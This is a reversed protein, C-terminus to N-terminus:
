PSPLSAVVEELTLRRGAAWAPTDELRELRSEYRRREAAVMRFGLTEEAACIAGWITAAPEDLKREALVSAIGALCVVLTAPSPGGRLEDVIQRYVRSATAFDGRDLALDGLSHTNAAIFAEPAGVERSIVDAELLAREAEEFRELDRLVEGLGHLWRAERFRNGTARSQTLGREALVLATELDGREWVVAARRGEIWTIEDTEGLQEAVAQASAWYRDALETDTIVHFATLGAVELAPLQLRPLVLPIRPTAVELWAVADYFGDREVWFPCCAIGLRLGLENQNSSWAWSLASQLNEREDQLRAFGEEIDIKLARMHGPLTTLREALECCWEAHRGLLASTDGADELRETSYERITELMWYRSGFTSERRRLLSKDLLSQLTDPDAGCVEEAAEYTCGGPFVSLCRFLRQEEPALLNYSWEITARLTQQRPDADRGGKFLDLRQSLRELLQEPSFLTTRAAALELALPLNDLRLCLQSVSENAAFAPELARARALFLEIGDREALTPVPYVQEGQLQLRERSTVLLAPGSTAVLKAIEEAAAPLLHEANDLLLLARKGGLEATLTEDLDRGPQEKVELAQAVASLLLAPDRVPALPVWWIGDPYRDSAEAAAQLALRTKGTGGSGTLTLLRIDQRMLFEVVRQLERQRGLFPTAPVPLWVNRLSRLPPHDGDDFQFVREPAALDKLRHEGLDRLELEVLGATSASVLVQGGHGAAAIRAARHVDAGVYGDETVLPTGTHLGLRVRIPGPALGEGIAQAAELAGPATPFALFFADGQTDVEIGGFRTCAERILRRHEALAKSYGEAGLGELLRTSGEVDSFLFTVTGSPLDRPVLSM